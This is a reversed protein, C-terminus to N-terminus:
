DLNITGDPNRAIRSNNPTWGTPKRHIPRREQSDVEVTVPLGASDALRDHLQNRLLYTHSGSAAPKKSLYDSAFDLEEVTLCEVAADQERLRAQPEPCNEGWQLVGRRVENRILQGYAKRISNTTLDQYRKWAEGVLDDASFVTGRITSLLYSAFRLSKKVQDEIPLERFAEDTLKSTNTNTTNKVDTTM